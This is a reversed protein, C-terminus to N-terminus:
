RPVVRITTVKSPAIGHATCQHNGAYAVAEASVKMGDDALTLPQTTYTWMGAQTFAGNVYWYTYGGGTSTLLELSVTSGEVVQISEPLDKTIVPPPLQDVLSAEHTYFTQGAASTIAARYRPCLMSSKVVDVSLSPGTQGAVTRWTGVSPSLEEWRYSLGTGKAHTSFTVRSGIVGKNMLPTVAPAISLTEASPKVIAQYRGLFPYRVRFTQQSSHPGNLTSVVGVGAFNASYYSQATGWGSESNTQTLSVDDGSTLMWPQTVEYALGLDWYYNDPRTLRNSSGVNWSTANSRMFLPAESSLEAATTSVSEVEGEVGGEACGVASVGVFAVLCCGLYMSKM